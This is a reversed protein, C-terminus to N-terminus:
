SDKTALLLTTVSQHLALPCATVISLRERHLIEGSFHIRTTQQPQPTPHSSTRVANSVVTDPLWLHALRDALGQGQM